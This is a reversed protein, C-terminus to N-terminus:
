KKNKPVWRNGRLELGYVSELLKEQGEHLVRATEKLEPGAPFQPDDLGIGSTLLNETFLKAALFRESKKVGFILPNDLLSIIEWTIQEAQHYAGADKEQKSVRLPISSVIRDINEMLFDLSFLGTACNFLVKAGEKEAKLVEDTDIAPGIDACTLRGTKDRVLVGGKIDVPTRYSFEFGAPAGSLAMIALHAPKPMNGINDVNGLLVFRKGMGHLHEFVPKLTIFCQGHGGPLPLVSKERGFAKSFIAWESEMKEYATILPQIATEVATVDGRGGGNLGAILPSNRYEAYAAAISDNNSMSTMQYMPLYPALDGLGGGSVGGLLLARMKLEMFAPGPTQDPQVFAPTLGKAANQLSGSYRSLVKGYYEFLEPDLAKNKLTDAYSTASGGNLVGYSLLPALRIGLNELGISDFSLEDGSISGFDAPHISLGLNGLAAAARNKKISYRIEGSCDVIARDEPTPLTSVTVPKDSYDGRNLRDLISITLPIDVSKSKM